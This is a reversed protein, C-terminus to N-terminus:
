YNLSNCSKDRTSWVSDLNQQNYSKTTTTKKKGRSLLKDNRSYKIFEKCNVTEIENDRSTDKKQQKMESSREDRQMVTELQAAINVGETGVCGVEDQNIIIISTRKGTKM